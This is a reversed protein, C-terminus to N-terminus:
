RREVRMWGIDANEHEIHEFTVQGSKPDVDYAGGYPLGTPYGIPTAPGGHMPLAMFVLRDPNSFDPYIIRDGSVTWRWATDTPWDILRRPSGDIRWIGNAGDRIGFMMGDHTRVRTWGYPLAPKPDNPRALEIRWERWGHRDQRPALLSKGDASWDFSAVELARVPIRQLMAGDRNVVNVSFRPSRGDIFALKTGDPSWRLAGAIDSKLRLIERLAGGKDALWIGTAGSRRMIAACAGDAAYALSFIVAGNPDLIRQPQDASAPAVALDSEGFELSMALLGDPGSSLWGIPVPSTTIRWSQGGSVPYAWLSADWSTNRAIFLASSDNSWAFSDDDDYSQLMTREAGSALDHLVIQARAWAIERMFAMTRGDPSVTPDTDDNERGAAPHTVEVTPGGNLDLRFISGPKNASTSDSFLLGNGAHDWALSSSPATRCRGVQRSPGGLAAILMIRCPQGSKRILYAIMSGDPSWAPAYAFSANTLRISNGGTRLRLYIERDTAGHGAAYAIMSGDPSFKPGREILPTSIFPQHSEVITWEHPSHSAFFVSLGVAVGAIVLVTGAHVVIKYTRPMVALRSGLGRRAAAPPPVTTPSLAESIRPPSSNEKDAQRVLRYGVRAITEIQFASTDTLAALARVKSICSNIADEGVIRGGWCREILEDRSVVAGDSGSLAILVQLVRPEVPQIKKHAEVERLSPRVQLGGIEFVSERALNIPEATRLARAAYNM